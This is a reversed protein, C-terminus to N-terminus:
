IKKINSIENRNKLNEELNLRGSSIGSLFVSLSMGYKIARFIVYTQSHATIEKRTELRDISKQLPKNRSSYRTNEFIKYNLVKVKTVCFLITKLHVRCILAIQERRSSLCHFTRHNAPHHARRVRIKQVSVSDSMPALNRM